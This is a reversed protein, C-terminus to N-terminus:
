EPDLRNGVPHQMVVLAPVAVAVGVPQAALLNREACADDENGVRVVRHRALADVALRQRRAVRELLELTARARLEVRLDDVREGVLEADARAGYLQRELSVAVSM